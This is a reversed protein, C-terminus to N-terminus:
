FCLKWFELHINPARSVHFILTLHVDLASFLVFDTNFLFFFLQFCYLPGSLQTIIQFHFNEWRTFVLQMQITLNGASAKDFPECSTASAIPQLQKAPAFSEHQATVLLNASQIFLSHLTSSNSCHGRFTNSTHLIFFRNLLRFVSECSQTQIIM